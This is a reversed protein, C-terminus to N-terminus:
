RSHGFPTCRLPTLWFLYQECPFQSSVFQNCSAVILLCPLCNQDLHAYQSSLPFSLLSSIFLFTGLSSFREVFSRPRLFSFSLLCSRVSIPPSPACTCTDRLMDKLHSKPHLLQRCLPTPTKPSQKWVPPFAPQVRPCPQTSVKATAMRASLLPISSTHFVHICSDRERTKFLRLSMAIPHSGVYMGRLGKTSASNPSVSESRERERETPDCLSVYRISSSHGRQQFSHFQFFLWASAQLSAKPKM